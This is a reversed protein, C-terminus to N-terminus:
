RYCIEGKPQEFTLFKVFHTAFCAFRAKEHFHFMRFQGNQLFQKQMLNQLSRFLVLKAPFGLGGKAKRYIPGISKGSALDKSSL